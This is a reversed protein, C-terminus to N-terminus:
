YDHTVQLGSESCCLSIDLCKQTKSYFFSTVSPQLHIWPNDYSLHLWLYLVAKRFGNAFIEALLSHFPLVTRTCLFYLLLNLLSRFHIFYLFVCLIFSLFLYFYIYSYFLALLNLFFCDFISPFWVFIFYFVFLIQQLILSVEGYGEAKRPTWICSVSQTFM